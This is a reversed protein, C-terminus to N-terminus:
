RCFGGNSVKCFSGREATRKGSGWRAKGKEADKSIFTKRAQIPSGTSRRGVYARLYWVGPRVEKM